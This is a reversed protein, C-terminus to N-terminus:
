FQVDLSTLPEGPVQLIEAFRTRGVLVLVNRLRRSFDEAVGDASDRVMVVSEAMREGTSRQHGDEGGQSKKSKYLDM